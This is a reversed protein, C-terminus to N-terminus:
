SCPGPPRSRSASIMYFTTTKGAGNPGLLGVVEDQRVELSVGRVVEREGYRKHLDTAKLHHASQKRVPPPADDAANKGGPGGPSAKKRSGSM